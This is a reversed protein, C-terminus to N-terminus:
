DRRYIVEILRDRRVHAVEVVIEAIDAVSYEVALEAIAEQLGRRRRQHEFPYDDVSLFTRTGRKPPNYLSSGSNIPSLSIRELHREILPATDVTIVCHERYRYARASLFTELRARTLWFFVKGNLLEYWERKTTGVLCRDLAKERLPIQDRITAKGHTPHVIEISRPRHESEIRIREQGNIEFLDLLATTSLLGHTRISDWTNAEAMHYLRPYHRILDDPSM